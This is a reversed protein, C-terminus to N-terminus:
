IRLVGIRGPPDRLAAASGFAPVPLSIDTRPPLDLGAPVAPAYHQAVAGSACLQGGMPCPSSGAGHGAGLANGAAAAHANPPMAAMGTMATAGPRPSTDSMEHHVLVAFVTLLAFVVATAGRAASSRAM